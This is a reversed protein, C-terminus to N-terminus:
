DKTNNGARAILVYIVLALAGGLVRPGRWNESGDIECRPPPGRLISHSSSNKSPSSSIVLLADTFNANM